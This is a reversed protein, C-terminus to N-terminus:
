QFQASGVMAKAKLFYRLRSYRTFQVENNSEMVAGISFKGPRERRWGSSGTQQESPWVLDLAQRCSNYSDDYEAEPARERILKLLSSFNEAAILKKDRLCSFDFGNALIRFKGDSESYLDVVADDAFFESADVIEKEGRGGKREKSEVRKRFLRGTVVLLLQSWSIHAVDTEAIRKPTLGLEDITLARVQLPPSDRFALDSDSVVTTELGLAELRRNVLSAEELTSTRALPMPMGAAVIRALDNSSLKLLKGVEILTETTPQNASQPLFINNYGMAWGEVPRLNLKLLDERKENVPLAAACYLCNLRTPPNVRLCEECRVMQDPTFGQPEAPLLPEDDFFPINENDKPM